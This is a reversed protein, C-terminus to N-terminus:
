FSFSKFSGHSTSLPVFPQPLPEFSPPQAVLDIPYDFPPLPPPDPNCKFPSPPPLVLDLGNEGRFDVIYVNTM